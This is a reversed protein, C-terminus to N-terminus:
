LDGLEKDLLTASFGHLNPVFIVERRKQHGCIVPMRVDHPPQYLEPRINVVTSTCCIEGGKVSCSLFTVQINNPGQNLLAGVHLGLTITTSPRWEQLGRIEPLRSDYLLQSLEPCIDM